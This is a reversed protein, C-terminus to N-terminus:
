EGTREAFVRNTVVTIVLCLVIMIVAIANAYGFKSYTFANKYLLTNPVDTAYGPGGGTLGMIFDFVKFAGTLVFVVVIKFTPKLQPLTIYILRQWPTVGDMAAAEYLQGPIDKLASLYLMMSYGVTWWVTAAVVVFWPRQGESLWFIEEAPQLVGITKLFSNVFGLYPKFMFLACYSVVTVSLVNPLYYAVRFFKRGRSNRNALLALLLALVMLVPVTLVVFKTTNGLAEWFYRDGLFKQYNKLGVFRQKGMLGWKHLSVYLGQIIPWITFITYFVTFPLLFLVAALLNKRKYTM